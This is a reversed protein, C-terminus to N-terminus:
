KDESRAVGDGDEKLDNYNRRRAPEEQYQYKMEDVVPLNLKV